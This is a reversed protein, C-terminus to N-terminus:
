NKEKKENEIEYLHEMEEVWCSEESLLMPERSAHKNEIYRLRATRIEDYSSTAWDKETEIASRRGRFKSYKNLRNYKNM